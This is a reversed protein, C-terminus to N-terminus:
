ERRAEAPQETQEVVRADAEALPFLKHEVWSGFSLMATILAAIPVAFIGLGLGCMIGLAAVVWIVAATTLGNVHDKTDRFVCGAGLFGIGTVINSMIRANDGPMSLSIMTFLASGLAILSLTKIGAAKGKKRRELGIITGCLISLLLPAIM